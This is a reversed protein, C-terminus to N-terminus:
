TKCDLCLKKNCPLRLQRTADEFKEVRSPTASWYAVSEHIKEIEVRIVNLGEKVILNLVHAACRMHFIKGNLLFSGSSSLKELLIDIMGDNSSCNDVTITSLKRDMNWDLLFIWYCMLFFKKQIHLLCMFLGVNFLIYFCIILILSMM